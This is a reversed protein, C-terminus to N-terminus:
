RVRVPDLGARRARHNLLRSEALARQRRLSALTVRTRSRGANEDQEQVRLTEKTQAIEADLAAVERRLLVEREDALPEVDLVGARKPAADAGARTALWYRAPRLNVVVAKGGDAAQEIPFEGGSSLILTSGDPLALEFPAGELICYRPMAM